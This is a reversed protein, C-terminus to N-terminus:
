RKSKNKIMQLLKKTDHIDCRGVDGKYPYVEWYPHDMYGLRGFCDLYVSKPQEDPLKVLFRVVAGGFPPIIKVEWNAPFKIYPITPILERWNEAKEVDYRETLKNYDAAQMM